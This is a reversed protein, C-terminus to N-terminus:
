PIYEAIPTDIPISFKNEIWEWFAAQILVRPQKCVHIIEDLFEQNFSTFVDFLDILIQKRQFTIDRAAIHQPSDKAVKVRDFATGLKQTEWFETSDAM